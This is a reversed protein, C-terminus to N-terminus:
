IEKRMWKKKKRSSGETPLLPARYAECRKRTSTASVTERKRGATGGGREGPATIIEKAQLSRPQASSGTFIKKRKWSNKRRKKGLPMMGATSAAKLAKEERPVKASDRAVGQTGEGRDAANKMERVDESGGRVMAGSPSPILCERDPRETGKGLNKEGPATPGRRPTRRSRCVAGEKGLVKKKGQLTRSGGKASQSVQATRPLACGWNKETTRRGRCKRWHSQM